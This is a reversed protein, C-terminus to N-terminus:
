STQIHLVIASIREGDPMDVTEFGPKFSLDIGRPAVYGRAIACAKVAQNVAGAGIARMKVKRNDYVAHSLASAIAQANSSSKIRLISEDESHEIDIDGGAAPTTGM